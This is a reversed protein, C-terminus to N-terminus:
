RFDKLQEDKMNDIYNIVEPTPRPIDLTWEGTDKQKRNKIKWFGEKSNEWCVTLKEERRFKKAATGKVDHSFKHFLVGTKNKKCFVISIYTM